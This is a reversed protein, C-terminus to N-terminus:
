EPAATFAGRWLLGMRTAEFVAEAQNRVDRKVYIARAHSQVTAMSLGLHRRGRRLHIRQLDVGAHGSRPSRVSELEGGAPTAPVQARGASAPGPAPEILKLTQYTSFVSRAIM